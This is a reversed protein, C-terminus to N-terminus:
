EEGEMLQLINRLDDVVAKLLARPHLGVM